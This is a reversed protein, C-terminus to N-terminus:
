FGVLGFEPQLGLYVQGVAEFRNASVFGHHRLTQADRFHREIPSRAYIASTGALGHMMDAVRAATKVAHAGALLLDAKEEPASAEGAATREWAASVTDYFLLRAARLMAEAEALTVQVISRDKMTRQFGFPTKRLALERLHDIAGRAIALMVPAVIVAAEGIGPFRYLASRYRRGPEFAPVLPFSRSAPVFVGDVVVDQSDTGRMGLTYWTDVIEAEDARLILGVVEPMAAQAASGSGDGVVATLFLWRADHINSALPGRGSVRYGGDVRVAQQPPHFAAAIIVDPGNAYLEDIGEEPLRACWWVASNGVQLAWGAVSDSAAIEEAVRAYTVPDVELGGLSRPAYMRQLGAGALAGMVVRSPRRDREAEAAHERILPGLDRATRVLDEDVALKM